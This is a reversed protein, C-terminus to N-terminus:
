NEKDSAAAAPGKLEITNGDPDCVYLSPGEGEAGYRQGSEGIVVGCDELHQRIATEDYPAIQLAFHDVNRGEQGPPAGGMSGLVGDIPVLDILSLGARLQLLGIADQRKEISCGLVDAYFSLSRDLNRVRLVVHDLKRIQFPIM